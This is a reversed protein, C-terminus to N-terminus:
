IPRVTIAKPTTPCYFECVGCGTCGDLVTPPGSGDFTIAAEGFPCREVCEACDKGDSRVCLPVYVQATGMAILHPEYVPLIAGSPCVHTCQLGECVVCPSRSPDIAPTGATAGFSEALPFIATAPCAKVCEGCRQCTENFRPEDISGPPRILSRAPPSGIKRDLYQAVPEILRDAASKFFARRDPSDAHDKTM